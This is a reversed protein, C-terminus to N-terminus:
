LILIKFRGHFPRFSRSRDCWRRFVRLEILDNGSILSLYLRLSNGRLRTSSNASPDNETAIAADIAKWFDSAMGESDIAKFVKFRRNNDSFQEVTQADHIVPAGVVVPTALKTRLVAEILAVDYFHLADAYLISAVTLPQRRNPYRLKQHRFGALFVVRAIGAPCSM